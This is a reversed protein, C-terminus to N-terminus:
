ACKKKVVNQPARGSAFSSARSRVMAGSNAHGALILGRYGGRLGKKPECNHM